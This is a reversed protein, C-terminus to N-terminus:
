VCVGKIILNLPQFWASEFAIPYIVLVPYVIPLYDCLRSFQNVSTVAGGVEPDLALCAFVGALCTQARAVGSVELSVASLFIM